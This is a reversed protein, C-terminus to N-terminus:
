TLRERARFTFVIAFSPRDLNNKMIKSTIKRLDARDQESYDIDFIKEQLCYKVQQCKGFCILPGDRM